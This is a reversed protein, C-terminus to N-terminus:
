VRLVFMDGIEMQDLESFLKASPLGRHGSLSCHTSEGGVPLSTWELHGVANALVAESTGHYIPLKCRISPIEIYGMVGTGSVNLLEGYRNKQEESLVYPNMRGMLTLNYEQAEKLLAAYREANLDNVQQDYNVIVQSQHLANWYDSIVPYLLLSLGALLILFLLITIVRTKNKKM